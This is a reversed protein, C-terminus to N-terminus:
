QGGELQASCDGEVVVVQCGSLRSGNVELSSLRSPFHVTFSIDMERYM